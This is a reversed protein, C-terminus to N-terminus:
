KTEEQLMKDLEEKPVGYGAFPSPDVSEGYTERSNCVGLLNLPVDRVYVPRLLDQIASYLAQNVRQCIGGATRWENPHSRKPADGVAAIAAKYWEERYRDAYFSDLVEARRDEPWEAQNPWDIEPHQAVWHRWLATEWKVWPVRYEDIIDATSLYGVAYVLPSGSPTVSLYVEPDETTLYYAALDKHEDSGLWPPGFRRWLYAFATLGSDRSKAAEGLAEIALAHGDVIEDSRAGRLGEPWSSLQRLTMTGCGGDIETGGQTAKSCEQGVISPSSM